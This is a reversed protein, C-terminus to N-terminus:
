VVFKVLFGAIIVSLSTVTAFGAVLYSPMIKKLIFAKEEENQATATAIENVILFTAPFGLLQAMSIGISMNRSGVIKWTPLIYMVLFLGLLTAVFVVVTQFLLSTLDSLQINALAPIISAFTAMQFFGSSKGHTLIKEPVLQLHGVTAGLFLAWISYNIPTIEGLYRSLLSFAATIALCVFDTFYKEYKVNFKMKSTANQESSEETTFKLKNERFEKLLLNAEKLGAMSAPPTGVFKQVAYLIIGLSAALEYGKSLAENTMIQTAAIGGNIVPVSVLAAEKGIIPMVLLIAVMATLMSIVALLVARWEKKLAGLNIMTGMHFVIFPASFKGVETLGAQNIIDAPFIGTLFGGLFVFLAVFVSSVKAKTAVGLFDGIGFIGLCIFLYFYLDLSPSM